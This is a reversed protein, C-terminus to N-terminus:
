DHRIDQLIRYLAHRIIRDSIRCRALFALDTGVRVSVVSVILLFFASGVQEPSAPRYNKVLLNCYKLLGGGRIEEPHKTAILKSHM